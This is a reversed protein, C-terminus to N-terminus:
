RDPATRYRYRHVADFGLGRYLAVAGVNDSQVQLWMTDAGLDAAVAALAVLVASAVGRRRFQPRTSMSGVAAWRGDVTVMGGGLLEGEDSLTVFRQPLDTATVETLRGRDGLLRVFLAAPATSTGIARTDVTPLPTRDVVTPIPAVMVLSDVTAPWSRRELEAILEPEAHDFIQFRPTLGRSRYWEEMMDITEPVSEAPAGPAWTSNARGTVGLGARLRWEGITLRDCGPVARDSLRELTLPLADSTANAQMPGTFWIM